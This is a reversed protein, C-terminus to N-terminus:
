KSKKEVAYILKEYDISTLIYIYNFKIENNVM